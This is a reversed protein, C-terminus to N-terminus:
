EGSWGPLFRLADECPEELDDFRVLALCDLAM